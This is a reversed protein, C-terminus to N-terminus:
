AAPQREVPEDPLDHDLHDESIPHPTRVQLEPRSEMLAAFAHVVLPDFQSGSNALVEDMAAEHTMADRYPRTSTMADYADVVSFIRADIPIKDDALGFPYGGGDYREHHYMLIPLAGELFGVKGVMVGALLPHKRMAEWEGENLDRPKNLVADPVGIKGVDHLLAGREMNLVAADPVNMSRALQVTLKAVRECHGETADDKTDLAAMLVKLTTDYSTELEHAHSRVKTFLLAQEVAMVAQDALEQVVRVQSSTYGQNHEAARVITVAGVVRGALTMPVCLLAAKGSIELDLGFTSRYGEADGTTVVTANTAVCRRLFWEEIGRQQQQTADTLSDYTTRLVLDGTEPEFLVVLAYRANALMTGDRAIQGLVDDLDLSSRIEQGKTYLYNLRNHDRVYGRIALRFALQLLLFAFLTAMATAATIQDQLRATSRDIARTDRDVEIVYPGADSFTALVNRGSSTATRISTGDPQVGRVASEEGVSYVKTGDSAWVRVATVQGKVFVPAVNGAVTRVADGPPVDPGNSLLVQRLPEVVLDQSARAAAAEQSSRALQRAVFVFGGAVALMLVLSAVAFRLHLKPNPITVNM